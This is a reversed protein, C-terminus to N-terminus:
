RGLLTVEGYVSGKNSAVGTEKASVKIFEYFIDLGISITAAAGNTGAFTFERAALTSTGGSVSENPIRYFNIGDPSAEFKVEISNSTESAGETYLIDLNLKSYGTCKFTKTAETVGSETQYTSELEVSTRTATEITVKDPLYTYAVSGFVPFTITAPYNLGAM